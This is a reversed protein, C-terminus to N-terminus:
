EGRKENNLHDAIKTASELSAYTCLPESTKADFGGHAELVVGYSRCVIWYDRMKMVRWRSTEYYSM